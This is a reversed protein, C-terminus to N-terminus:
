APLLTTHNADQLADDISRLKQQLMEIQEVKATETLAVCAKSEIRVAKRGGTEEDYAVENRVTVKCAKAQTPVKGLFAILGKLETHLIVAETLTVSKGDELRISTTANARAVRARLSVLESVAAARRDMLSEYSVEPAEDGEWQAAGRARTELQAITGALDKKRRLAQAITKIAPTKATTTKATSM